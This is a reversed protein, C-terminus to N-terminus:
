KSTIIYTIEATYIEEFNNTGTNIDIYKGSSGATNDYTVNYKLNSGGMESRILSEPKSSLAVNEFSQSLTNNTGNLASVVVDSVPIFDESGSFTFNEENAVVNVQFGGSSTVNLHDDFTTTVGSEYDEKTLYQLDIDKQSPNVAITQVPHFIINVSVGASNSQARVSEPFFTICLLFLLIVILDNM